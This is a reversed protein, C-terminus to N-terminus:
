SRTLSMDHQASLGRAYEALTVGVDPIRAFAQWESGGSKSNQFYICNWDCFVSFCFAVMATAKEM